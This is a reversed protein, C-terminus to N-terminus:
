VTVEKLCMIISLAQRLACSMKKQMSVIEVHECAQILLQTHTHSM